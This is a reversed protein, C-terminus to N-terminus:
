HGRVKDAWPYSVWLYQKCTRCVYGRGGQSDTDFGQWTDGCDACIGNNFQRREWRDQLFGGVLMVVLFAGALIFAVYQIWIDSM